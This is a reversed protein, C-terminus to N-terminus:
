YVCVRTSPDEPRTNVIIKFQTIKDGIEAFINDWQRLNMHTMMISQAGLTLKEFTALFLQCKM